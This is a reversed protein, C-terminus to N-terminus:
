STRYGLCPLAFTVLTLLNSLTSLMCCPKAKVRPGRLWKWIKNKKCGRLDSSIRRVFIKLSLNRNQEECVRLLACIMPPFLLARGTWCWVLNAPRCILSLSGLNVTLNDAVIQIRYTSVRSISQKQRGSIRPRHRTGIVGRGSPTIPLSTVISRTIMSNGRSMIM